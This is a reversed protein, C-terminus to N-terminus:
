SLDETEPDYQPAYRWAFGEKNDLSETPSTLSRRVGLYGNFYKSQSSSSKDKEGQPQKFFSIKYDVTGCFRKSGIISIGSGM